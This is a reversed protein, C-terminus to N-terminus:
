SGTEVADTHDMGSGERHHKMAAWYVEAVVLYVRTVPLYHNTVACYDSTVVLYVATVPLYHNTAAYYDGTVVLYVRTVPLYHNTAACYDSTAPWYDRTVARYHSTAPSHVTALLTTPIRSAYGVLRRRGKDEDEFVPFISSSSSPSSSSSFVARPRASPHRRKPASSHKGRPRPFCCAPPAHAGWRSLV